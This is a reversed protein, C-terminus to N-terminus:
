YSKSLSTCRGIFLLFTHTCTLNCLMTCLDVNISEWNYMYYEFASYIIQAGIDIM